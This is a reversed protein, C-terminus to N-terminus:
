DKKGFFIQNILANAVKIQGNLESVVDEGALEKIKLCQLNLMTRKFMTFSQSNKYPSDPMNSLYSLFKSIDDFNSPKIFPTNGSKFDDVIVSFIKGAIKKNFSASDFVNDADGTLQGLTLSSYLARLPSQYFYFEDDEKYFDIATITKDKPNYILNKTVGDFFMGNQNAYVIQRLLKKYTDLPLDAIIEYNDFDFLSVGEILRQISCGNALKAVNHNIKDDETLDFSIKGKYDLLEKKNQPNKMIRVCYPEDKLRYVVAENGEGIFNEKKSISDSLVDLIEKDGKNLLPKKSSEFRDNDLQPLSSFSCNRKSCFTSNYRKVLPNILLNVSMTRYFVYVLFIAVNNVTQLRKPLM